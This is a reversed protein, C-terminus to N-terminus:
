FTKPPRPTPRTGPRPPPRRPPTARTPDPQARSAPTSRTPAAGPSNPPPEPTSAPPMPPKSPRTFSHRYAPDRIPRTFSEPDSAQAATPRTADYYARIPTANPRTQYTQSVMIGDVPRTPDYSRGTQGALYRRELPADIIHSSAPIPVREPYPPLLIQTRPRRLATAMVTLGLMLNLLLSVLLAFAIGVILVLLLNSM